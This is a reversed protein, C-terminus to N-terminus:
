ASLYCRKRSTSHRWGIRSSCSTALLSACSYPSRMRRPPSARCPGNRRRRGGMLWSCKHQFFLSQFITCKMDGLVLGFRMTCDWRRSEAMAIEGEAASVADGEARVAGSDLCDLFLHIANSCAAIDPLKLNNPEKVLAHNRRERPSLRSRRHEVHLPYIYIDLSGFANIKIANGV